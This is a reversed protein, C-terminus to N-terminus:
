PDLPSFVTLYEDPNAPAIWSERSCCSYLLSPRQLLIQRSVAADIITKVPEIPQLKSRSGPNEIGEQKPEHRSVSKEPSTDRALISYVRAHANRACHSSCARWDEELRTYLSVYVHPTRTMGHADLKYGRFFAISKKMPSLRVLSVFM